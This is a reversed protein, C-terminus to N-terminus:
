ETFHLSALFFGPVYLDDSGIRWRRGFAVLSPMKKKSYLLIVKRKKYRCWSVAAGFSAAARWTRACIVGYVCVASCRKDLM